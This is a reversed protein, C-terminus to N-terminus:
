AARAQKKLRRAEFYGKVVRRFSEDVLYEVGVFVATLCLIWVGLTWGGQVWGLSLRGLAAAVIMAAAPRATVTIPRATPALERVALYVFLPSVVLHVAFGAAFGTPTPFISTALITCSWNVVASVVALRLLRGTQGMAEVAASGIWSFFTFVFGVSYFYLPAVAPLWKASYIIEVVKEAGGLFLACFFCSPLACLLTAKELERAFAGPDGQLRSLYPFYVRRVIGVPHTPFWATGQAFNVIGLAEKGLKAGVLLPTLSGNIFSVINTSQFAFGFKLLQRVRGHDYTFKPKWPLVINAAISILAAQGVTAWVLAAAGYGLHALALASGYYVLTGLFELLGVWGFSVQRELIIFPVARMMTFLLSLALGPLLLAADGTLAPWILPLVPVAAFSVAVLALGVGLQLWWISSFEVDDPTEKKQVLAAGLGTDGLLRFFSVAFQLIGFIGYDGPTLIRALYVNAVLIVLNQLVSRVTLAILGLKARRKLATDEAVEEPASVPKCVGRAIATSCSEVSLRRTTRILVWFARDHDPRVNFWWRGFRLRGSGCSRAAVEGLGM